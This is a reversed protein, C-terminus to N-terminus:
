NLNIKINFHKWTIHKWTKELQIESITGSNVDFFECIQTPTLGESIMDKILIVDTESLRSLYHSEGNAMLNNRVADKYNDERSLWVLNSFHNNQKNHDIHHVTELALPNEVFNEAVLRHVTKSLRGNPLFLKVALYGYPDTYPKLMRLEGSYGSRVNGYNSVEYKEGCIKWIEM